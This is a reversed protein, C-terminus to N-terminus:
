LDIGKHTKTFTLTLMEVAIDTNTKVVYNFQGQGTLKLGTMEQVKKIVNIEFDEDIYNEMIIHVQYIYNVDIRSTGSKNISQRNFVFYNWNDNEKAFTRGYYVPLNFEKLCQELKELIGIFKSM